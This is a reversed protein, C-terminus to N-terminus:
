YSLLAFLGPCVICVKSNRQTTAIHVLADACQRVTASGRLLLLGARGSRSNHLFMSTLPVVALAQTNVHCIDDAEQGEEGAEEEEEPRVPAAVAAAAAAVEEEEEEEATVDFGAAKCAAAPKDVRRIGSAEEASRPCAARASVGKVKAM